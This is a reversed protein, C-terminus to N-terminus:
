RNIAPGDIALKPHSGISGGADRVSGFRGSSNMLRMGIAANPNQRAFATLSRREATIWIRFVWGRKRDSQV